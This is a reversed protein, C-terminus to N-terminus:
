WWTLQNCPEEIRSLGEANAPRDRVKLAWLASLPRAAICGPIDAEFGLGVLLSPATCLVSDTAGVDAGIGNLMIKRAAKTTWKGNSRM